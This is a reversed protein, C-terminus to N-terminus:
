APPWSAGLLDQSYVLRRNMAAISPLLQAVRLSLATSTLWAADYRIAHSEFPKVLMPNGLVIHSGSNLGPQLMSLDFAIDLWDCLKRLAAEPQLAL